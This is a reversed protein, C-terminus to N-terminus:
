VYVDKEKFTYSCETGSCTEEINLWGLCSNTNVEIYYRSSNSNECIGACRKITYRYSGSLNSENGKVYENLAERIDSRKGATEYKFCACGSMTFFIAILFLTHKMYISRNCLAKTMQTKTTTSNQPLT